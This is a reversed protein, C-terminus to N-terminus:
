APPVATMTVGQDSSDGRGYEPLDGAVDQDPVEARQRLDIDDISRQRRRDNHEQAQFDRRGQQQEPGLDNGLVLADPRFTLARRWLWQPRLGLGPTARAASPSRGFQAAIGPSASAGGNHSPKSCDFPHPASPPANRPAACTRSARMRRWALMNWSSSECAQCSVPGGSGNKSSSFPANIRGIGEEEDIREIAPQLRVISTAAIGTSSPRSIM